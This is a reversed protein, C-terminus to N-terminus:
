CRRWARSRKELHKFEPEGRKSRLKFMALSFLIAMGGDLVQWYLRPLTIPALPNFLIAIGLMIWFWPSNKIMSARLTLYIASACVVLRLLTYFGHPWTALTALLLVIISTFTPVKTPKSQMILTQISRAANILGLISKHGNGNSGKQSGQPMNLM